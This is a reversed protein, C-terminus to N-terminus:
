VGVQSAAAPGTGTSGLFMAQLEANKAVEAAPGELQVRGSTLLYVYDAHELAATVNQEVVCVTLGERALDALYEWVQHALLPSLGATAEDLLLAAPNSMLARGVAVMNRQGGSLKGAPRGLIAQLDPFLAFVRDYT